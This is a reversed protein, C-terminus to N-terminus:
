IEGKMRLGVKALPRLDRHAHRSEVGGAGIENRSGRAAKNSIPAAGAVGNPSHRTSYLVPAAFRNM